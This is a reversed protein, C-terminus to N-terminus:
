FYVNSISVEDILNCNELVLKGLGFNVSLFDAIPEIAHRDLPVFSLDLTRLAPPSSQSADKM